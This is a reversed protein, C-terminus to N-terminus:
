IIKSAFIGLFLPYFAFYYFPPLLSLDIEFKASTGPSAGIVVIAAGDKSMSYLVATSFVQKPGEDVVFFMTGSWAARIVLWFSLLQSINDYYSFSFYAFMSTLSACHKFMELWSYIMLFCRPKPFSISNSMAIKKNAM